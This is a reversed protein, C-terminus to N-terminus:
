SRYLNGMGLANSPVSLQESRGNDLEAILVSLLVAVM